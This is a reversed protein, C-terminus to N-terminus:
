FLSVPRLLPLIYHALLGSLSIPKHIFECAGKSIVDRVTEPEKDGSLILVPINPFRKNIESLVKSGHMLPLNLDLLIMNPQYKEILELGTIGNTAFAASFGREELFDKMLGCMYNDDDIILIKKRMM